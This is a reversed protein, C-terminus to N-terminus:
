VYLTNSLFLVECSVQVIRLRPKEGDAPIKTVVEASIIKYDTIAPDEDQVHSLDFTVMQFEISYKRAIMVWWM